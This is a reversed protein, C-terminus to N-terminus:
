RGARSRGCSSWRLRRAQAQEVMRQVRHQHEAVDGQPLAVRTPMIQKESRTSDYTGGRPPMFWIFWSSCAENSRKGRAPRIATRRPTGTDPWRVAFLPRQDHQDGVHDVLHVGVLDLAVQPVSTPRCRGSPTSSRSWRRNSAASRSGCSRRVLQEAGGGGGLDEGPPMLDQAVQFVVPTRARSTKGSSM